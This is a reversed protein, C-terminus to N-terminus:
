RAYNKGFVTNVFSKNTFTTAVTATFILKIPQQLLLFCGEDADKQEDFLPGLPYSM